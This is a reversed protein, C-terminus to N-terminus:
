GGASSTGNGAREREEASRAAAEEGYFLVDMTVGLARALAAFARLKPEYVDGEYRAIRSVETRVGLAWMAAALDPRTMGRALRLRRIRAGLTEEAV